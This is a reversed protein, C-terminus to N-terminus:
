DELLQVLVTAGERARDRQGLTIRRLVEAAVRAQSELPAGSVAQDILALAEAVKPHVAAPPPTPDPDVPTPTDGPPTGQGPGPDPDPTPAVLGGEFRVGKGDIVVRYLPEGEPIPISAQVTSGRARTGTSAPRGDVTCPPWPANGGYRVGKAEGVIRGGVRSATVKGVTNGGSTGRLDNPHLGLTRYRDAVQSQAMLPPTSAHTNTAFFSYGQGRAYRAIELRARSRVGLKGLEDVIPRPNPNAVHGSLLARDKATLYAHRSHLMVRCPWGQIRRHTSRWTPLPPTNKALLVALAYSLYVNGRYPWQSRMGGCCVQLPMRRNSFAGEGRVEGPERSYSKPLALLTLLYAHARLVRQIEPRQRQEYAMVLYPVPHPYIHSLSEAGWLGLHTGDLQWECYQTVKDWSENEMLGMLVAGAVPHNWSGGRKVQDPPIASAHKKARERARGKWYDQTRSDNKGYSRYRELAHALIEADNSTQEVPPVEYLM